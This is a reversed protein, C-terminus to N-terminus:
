KKIRISDSYQEYAGIDWANGASRLVTNISGNYTEILAEGGNIGPSNPPLSLGDTNPALDVGYTGKFGTPLESNNKFIPKDTMNNSFGTFRDVGIIPTGGGYFAANNRFEFVPFTASPCDIIILANYFTNNYVWISNANGLSKLMVLGLNVTNGYVINGYIKVDKPDSGSRGDHLKIAGHPTNNGIINYRLHINKPGIGPYHRTENGNIFLGSAKVDHIYNYEIYADVVFGKICIGSGAGYDPDQGSNYVECGRVTINRIRSGEKDSPYLCIIDRSIDHVKCNIIEVNECYGKPGNYNSIIIGYKYQKLSTRSWVHHVECNEVRKTAGNMLTSQFYNIDIGNAVKRNADVNFGKFLTSITAHDQFRVVGGELDTAARIEARIGSGWSDGIYNVGGVLLIGQNGTVSWTDSSDFYITDGPQLALSGSYAEMGPCNKLPAKTSTGSNADNGASQDIYFIRGSTEITQNGNPIWRTYGHNLSNLIVQFDFLNFSAANINADHPNNPDKPETVKLFSWCLVLLTILVFRFISGISNKIFNSKKRSSINNRPIIVFEENMKKIKEPLQVLCELAKLSM